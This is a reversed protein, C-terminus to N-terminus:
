EIRSVHILAGTSAAFGPGSSDEDLGAIGIPKGIGVSKKAQKAFLDALGTLQSAGGTLVYRSGATHEMRAREMRTHLLELIEEVRPRIIASLLNREITQGAVEATGLTPITINDSRGLRVVERLQDPAVGTIDTPMVSGDIAKLREAEAIPTSLVRAIDTTVRNGGIKITDVYVLKGEMFIAISTTGGGMDVIVSGLDREEASLCALGSAYASHLFRDTELHNLALAERLNALSTRLGCVLTYDVSLNTGRMGRPDAIGRVDDLGYQLTQLHMPQYNEPFNGNDSRAMLRDIDRRRVVADSLRVSKTCISSIPTGGPAVITVSTVSIGADREAAQVTKGIVTSLAELDSVEGGRIGASAHTGHGLLRVGGSGDSEGIMCCIKSSGIDLVAFPRRTIAKTKGLIM